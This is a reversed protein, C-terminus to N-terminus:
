IQHNKHLSCAALLLTLSGVLAQAVQTEVAKRFLLSAGGCVGRAVTAAVAMTRTHQVSSTKDEENRAYKDARGPSRIARASWRGSQGLAGALFRDARRDPAEM